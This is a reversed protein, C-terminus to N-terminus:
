AFGHVRPDEHLPGSGRRAQSVLHPVHEGAGEAIREEADRQGYM